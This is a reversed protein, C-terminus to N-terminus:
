EFGDWTQHLLSGDALVGASHIVGRLPPSSRAIQTLVRNLDDIESVDGQYVTATVGRDRLAEIETRTRAGPESRAMLALHCAGRGAMWQAVLLGLGSLGGTILYTADAGFELP